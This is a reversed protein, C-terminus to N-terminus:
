EVHCRGLRDVARDVADGLLQDGAAAEQERPEAEAELALRDLQDLLGAALEVVVAQERDEGLADRSVWAVIAAASARSGLRSTASRSPSSSRPSIARCRSGSSRRRWMTLM